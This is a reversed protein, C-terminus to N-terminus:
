MKIKISCHFYHFSVGLSYSYIPQHEDEDSTGDKFIAMKERINGRAMSIIGCDTKSDEQVKLDNGSLQNKPKRFIDTLRAQFINM